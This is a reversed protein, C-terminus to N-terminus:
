KFLVKPVTPSWTVSGTHISMYLYLYIFLDIFLYIYIYIYIYITETDQVKPNSTYVYSRSQFKWDIMIYRSQAELIMDTAGTRPGYGLAGLSGGFGRYFM